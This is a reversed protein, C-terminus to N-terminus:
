LCDFWFLGGIPVISVLLYSELIYLMYHSVSIERELYRKGLGVLCNLTDRAYFMSDLFWDSGVTFSYAIAIHFISELPYTFIVIIEGRREREIIQLLKEREFSDSGTYVDLKVGRWKFLYFLILRRMQTKVGCLFPTWFIWCTICTGM